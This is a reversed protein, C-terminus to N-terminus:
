CNEEVGADSNFWTVSVHAIKERTVPAVPNCVIVSAKHPRVTGRLDGLQSTRTRKCRQALKARAKKQLHLYSCLSCGNEETDYHHGKM